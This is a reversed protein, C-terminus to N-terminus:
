GIYISAPAPNTSPIGPAQPTSSFTHEPGDKYYKNNQPEQAEAKMHGAAQNVNKQHNRDDNQDIVEDSPSAATQLAM